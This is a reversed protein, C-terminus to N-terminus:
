NKPKNRLLYYSIGVITYSGIVRSIAVGTLGWLHASPILLAIQFLSGGITAKAYKIEKKQAIFLSLPIMAVSSLIMLSLIRSFYVSEPYKPFFVSYLYPALVIYFITIITLLAGLQITKRRLNIQKNKLGSETFKPVMLTNLKKLLFRIQDPFASAFGYVALEVAGLSTYVIVKDIHTTVLNIVNLASLKLSYKELEPDETTTSKCRRVTLFYLFLNIFINSVFYVALILLVNKTFFLTGSALLLPTVSNVLSYISLRLYDQKGNLYSAYLNFSNIFPTSVTIIILSTGLFLNDKFFYYCAGIFAGSVALVSWKFSLKVSQKLASDYGRAVSQVLATGLGTLTFASLLAFVSLIYKYNGYAEKSLYYGFIVTVFFSIFATIIHGTGLFFSGSM